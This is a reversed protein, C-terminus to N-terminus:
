AGHYNEKTLKLVTKKIKDKFIERDFQKAFQRLTAEKFKKPEFKKIADILSPAVQRDFIVGLDNKVLEGAGGESFAIVPKGYSFAEVITIGFDEEQPHVLALCHAFLKRKEDDLIEGLFEINKKALKKLRGYEKGIGAIKLPLGLDNFARVALDIRKHPELRSLVLFYDGKQSKARFGSEIEVPPYIVTSERRYYTKIRQKTTLSNALLVDPRQAALRDWIRLYSLGFPLLKKFLDGVHKQGEFPQHWLYRTPTHIYSIHLTDPKVIVGKSFSHSDSIVLDFGRLDLDEIATPMLIRYWDTKKFSFPMRQLFSTKIEWDKYRQNTGKPDYLLTFVPAKPYIEKLAELVKEAGGLKILYDHILAVKM